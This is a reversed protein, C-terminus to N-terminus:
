SASAGYVRVWDVEMWSPTTATGDPFWDLQLTQKMNGYPIHSPTEDRFWEVGDLYGVVATPSWDVAYNHWQTTDVVASASAVTTCCDHLYFRMKTTDATGEAYDIEWQQNLDAFTGSPWLLMVPHYESDRVSTRMRAEWRGYTQKAFRASMGGTTGASDGAVHAATGNVSWAAPTRIGNGAHGASNYLSWKLPDPAGTYNFEDGTVVPGWGHAVAAETSPTPTPDPTPTPTPTPDTPTPTPTPTSTPEPTPETPTPTTPTPTPTPTLFCNGDADRHYGDPVRHQVGPLNRCQDTKRWAHKSLGAWGTDPWPSATATAGFLLALVALAVLLGRTLNNM